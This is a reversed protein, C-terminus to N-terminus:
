EPKDARGKKNGLQRKQLSDQGVQRKKSKPQQRVNTSATTWRSAISAHVNINIIALHQSMQKTQPKTKHLLKRKIRMTDTIEITTSIM